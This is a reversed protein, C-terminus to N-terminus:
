GGVKDQYMEIGRRAEKRLCGTDNGIYLRGLDKELRKREFNDQPADLRRQQEGEIRQARSSLHYNRYPDMVSITAGAFDAAYDRFAKEGCFCLSEPEAEGIPLIAEFSHGESCNYSYTM